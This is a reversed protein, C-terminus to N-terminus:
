NHLIGWRATAEALTLVFQGPGQNDTENTTLVEHIVYHQQQRTNAIFVALFWRRGAIMVPCNLVCRVLNVACRHRFDIVHRTEANILQGSSVDFLQLVPM